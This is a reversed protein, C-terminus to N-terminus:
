TEDHRTSAPPIPPLLPPISAGEIHHATHIAKDGALPPGAAISRGADPGNKEDPLHLYTTNGTDAPMLGPLLPHWFYLALASNAGCCSSSGACLIVITPTERDNNGKVQLPSRLQGQVAPGARSKLM